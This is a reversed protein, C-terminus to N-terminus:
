FISFIKLRVECWIAKFTGIKIEELTIAEFVHNDEKAHKHMLKPFLDDSQLYKIPKSRNNELTQLLVEHREKVGM